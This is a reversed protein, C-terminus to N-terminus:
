YMLWVSLPFSELCTSSLWSRWHLANFTSTLFLARPDLISSSRLVVCTGALRSGDRSISTGDRLDAHDKVSRVVDSSPTHSKQSPCTHTVGHAPQNELRNYRRTPSVTHPQTCTSPQKLPQFAIGGPHTTTQRPLQFSEAFNHAPVVSPTSHSHHLLNPRVVTCSQHNLFPSLTVPNEFRATRTPPPYWVGRRDVSSNSLCHAAHSPPLPRGTCGYVGALAQPLSPAM